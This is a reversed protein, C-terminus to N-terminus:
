RLIKKKANKKKAYIANKKAYITKKLTFRLLVAIYLDVGSFMWLHNQSVRTECQRM